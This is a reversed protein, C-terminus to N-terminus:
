ILVEYFLSLFEPFYNTRFNLPFSVFNFVKLCCIIASVEEGKLTPVTDRFLDLNHTHPLKGVHRQWKLAQSILALLRSPPVVSVETLLTQAIAARRKDQCLPNVTAFNTCM